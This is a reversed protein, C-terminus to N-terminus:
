LDAGENLLNPLFSHVHNSVRGARRRIAENAQQEKAEVKAKAARKAAMREKLDALRQKKEEETM